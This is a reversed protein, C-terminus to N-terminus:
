GAAASIDELEEEVCKMFLGQDEVVQPDLLTSVSVCGGYSVICVMVGLNCPNVFFLLRQVTEGCLAVKDRPGVVNSVTMHTKDAAQALKTQLPKQGGLVFLVWQLYYAIWPAAIAKLWSISRKVAAVRSALDREKVPVQVQVFSVNVGFRIPDSLRKPVLSVAMNARIRPGRDCSAAGGANKHTLYRRTWGGVASMLVDNLTAGLGKSVVKLKQLSFEKTWGTMKSTCPQHKARQWQLVTATDRLETSIAVFPISFPLLIITHLWSALAPLSAQLRGLL